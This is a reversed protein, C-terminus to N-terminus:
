ADSVCWNFKAFAGSDLPSRLALFSTLDRPPVVFEVRVVIPKYAHECRENASYCVQAGPLTSAVIRVRLGNAGFAGQIQADKVIFEDFEGDKGGGDSYLGVSTGSLTLEYGHQVIPAVRYNIGLFM